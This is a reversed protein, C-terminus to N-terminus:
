MRYFVAMCKKPTHQGEVLFERTKEAFCRNRGYESFVSSFFDSFVNQFFLKRLCELIVIKELKM